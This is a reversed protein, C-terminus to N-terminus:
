IVGLVGSPLRLGLGVSFTLYIVSSLLLAASIDFLPRRSGIGRAVFWFLLAAALIWGLLELTAAFLAFGGICWAM